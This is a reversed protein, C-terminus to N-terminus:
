VIEEATEPDRRGAGIGTLAGAGSLAGARRGVAVVVVDELADELSITACTTECIAGRTEWVTLEATEPVELLEFELDRKAVRGAGALLTM